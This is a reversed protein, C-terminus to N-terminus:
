KRSLIQDPVIRCTGDMWRTFGSASHLVNQLLKTITKFVQHLSGLVVDPPNFQAKIKLLSPRTAQVSTFGAPNKYTVNTAGPPLMSQLLAQPLCCLSFPCLPSVLRVNRARPPSGVPRRARPQGMGDHSHAIM